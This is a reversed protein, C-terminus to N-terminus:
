SLMHKPPPIDPKLFVPSPDEISFLYAAGPERELVVWKETTAIIMWPLLSFASIKGQCKMAFMSLVLKSKKTAKIAVDPEVLDSKSNACCSGCSEMEAPCCDDSAFHHAVADSANGHVFTEHKREGHECCKSKSLTADEDQLPNIWVSTAVAEAQVPRAAYSPPIVEHEEAWALREELTSCCCNTWCQEATKCGCHSNQCPFPQSHDKTQIELTAVPIPLASACFFILVLFAIVKRGISDRRKKGAFVKM